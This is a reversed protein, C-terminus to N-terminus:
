YFSKIELHRVYLECWLISAADARQWGKRRGTVLNYGEGVESGDVLEGEKLIVEEGYLCSFWNEFKGL